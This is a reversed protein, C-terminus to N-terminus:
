TVVISEWGDYKGGNKAALNFLPLTDDPASIARVKVGLQLAEKVYATLSKASAFYAWHDIERPESLKDGNRELAECIRRNQITQRDATSPYLYSFYSSWGPEERTDAEYPYGDFSLM